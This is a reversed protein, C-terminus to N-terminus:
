CQGQGAGEGGKVVELRRYLVNVPKDERKAPGGWVVSGITVRTPRMPSFRFSTQGMLPNGGGKKSHFFTRLAFNSNTQDKVRFTTRFEAM